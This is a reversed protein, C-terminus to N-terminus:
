NDADYVDGKGDSEPGGIIMYEDEGQPINGDNIADIQEEDISNSAM